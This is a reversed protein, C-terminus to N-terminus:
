INQTHATCGRVSSWLKDTLNTCLLYSILYKLVWDSLEASIQMLIAEAFALNFLVQHLLVMLKALLNLNYLDRTVEMM